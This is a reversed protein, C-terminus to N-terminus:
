DYDFQPFRDVPDIDFSLLGKKVERSNKVIQQAEEIDACDLIVVFGPPDGVKYYWHAIVGKRILEWEDKNVELKLHTIVQDNTVGPNIRSNVIFLM